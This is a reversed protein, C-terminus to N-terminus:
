STAASFPTQVTSFFQGVSKWWIFSNQTLRKQRKSTALAGKHRYRYMMIGAFYGAKLEKRLFYPLKKGRSKGYLDNEKVSAIVFGSKGYLAPNGETCVAGAGM